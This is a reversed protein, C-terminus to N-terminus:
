KRNLRIRDFFVDRYKNSVPIRTAGIRVVGREVSGIKDIAVMFSKHIRCFRDAPLLEEIKPFSQLTMIKKEQCIIKLYDKMGEIYLISDIDVREFRYETKIFIFREHDTKTKDAAKRESYYAMVKDVAKLFREFSFPKLLYDCDNLEFGKIAYKEFTSTIIIRANLNTSEIFQIGTLQEMQIDLFVLDAPNERLWVAAEIGSEFTGLLILGPVRSIFNELKSIALPEDDIVVCTIKM